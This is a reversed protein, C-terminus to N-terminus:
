EQEPIVTLEIREINKTVLYNEITDSVLRKGEYEFDAEKDKITVTVTKDIMNNTRLVLVVKDGISYNSIKNNDLDTLYTEVYTPKTDNTSGVIAQNSESLDTVKWVKQDEVNRNRTIAPSLRMHMTMASSGISSMQEGISICFCDWFEIKFCLDEDGDYFVLKGNHMQGTTMWDYWFDDDSSSELTLNFIGGYRNYEINRCISYKPKLYRDYLFDLNPIIGYDLGANYRLRTLQEYYNDRVSKSTEQFVSSSLADTQNASKYAEDRLKKDLQNPKISPINKENYPFLDKEDGAQYPFNRYLFKKYYDDSVKVPCFYEYDMHTLWRKKGNVELQIKYM